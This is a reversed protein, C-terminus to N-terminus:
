VATNDIGENKKSNEIHVILAQYFSNAFNDNVNNTFADDRDKESPYAIPNMVMTLGLQEDKPIYALLMHCDTDEDYAKKIFLDTGHENKFAKCIGDDLKQEFPM